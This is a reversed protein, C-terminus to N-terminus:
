FPEKVAKGFPAVLPIWITFLTGEGAQSDITITGGLVNTVSNFTVFLGLGTGGRGIATTFFPDFVQKMVAKSMGAGDDRVRIFVHNAESKEASISITGGKKRFGHTASNVILNTLVQGLDGPYSDFSLNDPIETEVRIPLPKLVPTLTLLVEDVIEKLVFIRRRSSARDAAVDKFSRVLESARLLNKDAISTSTAVAKVFSDLESRLLGQTLSKEFKELRLALASVAIRGNGLPTNLEHAVGAVLRGLAALKESQILEDRTREVTALAVELKQNSRTLEKTRLDVRNELDENLLRLEEERLAIADSMVQLDSSLQNLERIRGRPWGQMTTGSAIQHARRAAERIPRVIGQAWLPVLILGVLISGFATILVVMVVERLRPNELRAPIRSVVLWGLADSYAASVHYITGGFSMTRPLPEGSFGAQVVPLNYLNTEGLETPHTDAVVEGRSDIIWYDLSNAVRSINSIKLLTDLPLEAIIIGDTAEIPVALGVTVVGTVASTHKDSWRLNQHDTSLGFFARYASLDIGYLEQRRAESINAVSAAALKGRSNISYIAELNPQRASELMESIKHAPLHPYLQSVLVVRSEIESLFAEIRETMETATRSIHLQNQDSIHKVMFGLIGSGVIVLTALLTGALLLVVSTRLQIESRFRM